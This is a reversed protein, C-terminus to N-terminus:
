PYPIKKVFNMPILGEESVLGDITRAVWWGDPDTDDIIVLRQGARLSLEGDEKDGEHNYLASVMFEGELLKVSARRPPPKPKVIKFSGSEAGGPTGSVGSQNHAPEANESDPAHDSASQGGASSLTIDAENKDDEDQESSGKVSASISANISADVTRDANNGALASAAAAALQRLRETERDRSAILEAAATEALQTELQDTLCQLNQDLGTLMTEWKLRLERMEALCQKVQSLPQKPASLQSLFDEGPYYERFVNFLRLWSENVQHLQRAMAEQASSQMVAFENRLEKIEQPPTHPTYLASSSFSLDGSGPSYNGRRPPPPRNPRDKLASSSEETASLSTRRGPPPRPRSQSGHTSTTPASISSTLSTNVTLSGQGAQQELSLSRNLSPSNQLSSPASTPPSSSSSSSSSPSSSSSSSSSSSIERQYPLSAKDTSRIVLTKDLERHSLVTEESWLQHVEEVMLEVVTRVHKGHVIATETTEVQPRLINPAFVISLNKAEMKNIESAQKVENLFFLIHQLLGASSQPLSSLSAKLIAIREEQEPFSAIKILPDYLAYSLIPAPLERIVLKILSSLAHPDTVSALDPLYGAQYEQLIREVELKSGSVRFIGEAYIGQGTEKANPLRSRRRLEDSCSLVVSKCHRMYIQNIQFVWEEIVVESESYLYFPDKGEQNLSLCYENGEMADSKSATVRNLAFFGLAQKRQTLMDENEFYFLTSNQLICFRMLSRAKQGPFRRGVAKLSGKKGKSSAHKFILYGKHLIPKLSIEKRSRAREDGVDDLPVVMVEVMKKPNAYGSLQDSESFIPLLALLRAFIDDDLLLVDGNVLKFVYGNKAGLIFKKKRWIQDKIARFNMQKTVGGMAMKEGNQLFIRVTFGESGTLPSTPTLAGSQTDGAEGAAPSSAALPGLDTDVRASSMGSTHPTCGSIVDIFLVLFPVCLVIYMAFASHSLYVSSTVSSLSVQIFDTSVRVKHLSIKHGFGCLCRSVCFSLFSYRLIDDRRM